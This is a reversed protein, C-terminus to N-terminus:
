EYSLIHCDSKMEHKQGGVKVRNSIFYFSEMQFGSSVPINQYWESIWAMLMDIDNQFNALYIKLINFIIGYEIDNQM